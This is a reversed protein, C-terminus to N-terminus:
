AASSKCTLSLQMVIGLWRAIHTASISSYFSVAKEFGLELGSHHIRLKRLRGLWPPQSLGRAQFVGHDFLSSRPHRRHVQFVNKAIDLGITTIQM